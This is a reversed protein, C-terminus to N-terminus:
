RVVGDIVYFRPFAGVAKAVPRIVACESHSRGAFNGVAGLMQEVLAIEPHNRLVYHEKECYVAMKGVIDGVAVLMLQKEGAEDLVM